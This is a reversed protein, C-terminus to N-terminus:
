IEDYEDSDSNFDDNVVMSEIGAKQLRNVLTAKKGNSNLRLKKLEKRLENTNMQKMDM